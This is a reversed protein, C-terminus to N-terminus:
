VICILDKSTTRTVATYLMRRDMRSTEWISFKFDFTAGQSKHVTMAYAVVFSKQFDVVKIDGSCTHIVQDNWGTVTFDQNNLIGQQKNNKCSMIPAGVHLVVPQAYNNNELDQDSCDLFLNAGKKRRMIYENIKKRTHNTYCLHRDSEWKTHTGFTFPKISGTEYAHAAINWMIDDSRKNITLEFRNYDCLQKLIRTNEYDYLDDKVPPLQKFDGIMLFKIKDSQKKALNLQNYILSGVMSLEDLIIYDYSKLKRLMNKRIKQTHDMGLFKHITVGGVNLAAKNTPALIAYKKGRENLVNVINKILYSKGVGASGIINCSEDKDIIHKAIEDFDEFDQEQDTKWDGFVMEVEEKDSKADNVPLNIDGQKYGGFENTLEVKFEQNEVIVNDTKIAILRGGMEKYLKYCKIWENELIQNFIPIDSDLEIHNTRDEIKYLTKEDDMPTIYVESNAKKTGDFNFYHACATQFNTEFYVKSSTTRRMALSGITGNSIFKFNDLQVIEEQFRVMYNEDYTGSAILQYKITYNIKEQDLYGIFGDSYWGDGKCPLQNSTLIYYFGPSLKHETQKIYPEISDMVCFRKYEGLVNDRLCSTRCKNIDIGTLKDKNTPQNYTRVLNANVPFTEFVQQNFISKKHEPYLTNFIQRGLGLVSQNTFVIPTKSFNNYEQIYKQVLELDKNAHYTIGQLNSTMRKIRGYQFVCNTPSILTNDKTYFNMFLQDLSEEQVIVNSEDLVLEKIETVPTEKMFSSSSSTTPKAFSNVRNVFAKDECLYLHNNAVIYCLANCKKSRSAPYFSHFLRENIDLAYMPIHFKKCFKELDNVTFGDDPNKVQEDPDAMAQCVGTIDLHLNRGPKTKDCYKYWLTEPVCCMDGTDQFNKTIHMNDILVTSNFMRVNRLDLDGQVINTSTYSTIETIWPYGAGRIITGEFPLEDFRNNTLDRYLQILGDNADISFVPITPKNLLDRVLGNKTSPLGTVALNNAVMVFPKTSTFVVQQNRSVGSVHRALSGDETEADAGLFYTTYNVVNSYVVRKAFKARLNGRLTYMVERKV